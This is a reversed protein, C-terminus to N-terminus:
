VVVVVVVVEVVAVVLVLAVVVVLLYINFTCHKKYYNYTFYSKKADAGHGVPYTRVGDPEHTSRKISKLLQPEM